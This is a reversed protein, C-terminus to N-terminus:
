AAPRPLSVLGEIEVLLEKRCIQASMTELHHLNPLRAAIKREVAESDQPRRVFVRLETASKALTTRGSSARDVLAELNIFTEDLQGQLCTPHRSAEGRIAATGGILLCYRDGLEVMTARSFCPPCPGFRGSYRYAPRQRPNEVSQGPRDSALCFIHLDDGQHGVGTATPLTTLGAFRPRLAEYRGANFVMYRDLGGGAQRNIQPIFNWFRVPSFPAEAVAQCVLCYLDRTRQRLTDADLRAAAPLAAAVLLWESDTGAGLRLTELSLGHVCSREPEARAAFM